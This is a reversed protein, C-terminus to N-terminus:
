VENLIAEHPLVLNYIIALQESVTKWTCSACSMPLVVFGVYLLLIFTIRIGVLLALRFTKDRSSFKRLCYKNLDYSIVMASNFLRAAKVVKSSKDIPFYHTPSGAVLSSCGTQLRFPSTQWRITRKFLDVLIISIRIMLCYFNQGILLVNAHTWLKNIPIYVCKRTSTSVWWWLCGQGSQKLTMRRNTASYISLRKGM